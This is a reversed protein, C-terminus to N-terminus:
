TAGALGNGINHHLRFASPSDGSLRRFVRSFYAPDRFGLSWAISELPEGTYVLRRKAEHLLRQQVLQKASLELVARCARNLTSSSVHLAAAYQEVSWASRYHADLLVRFAQILAHQSSAMAGKGASSSGADHRQLTVLVALVLLQVMAVNGARHNDLEWQLLRLYQELQAFLQLESRCDIQQPTRALRAAAAPLLNLGLSDLVADACTLVQGRTGPRFRFGHVCGAPLTLAWAGELQHEDADVTVDVGGESICLVQFMGAHRHPRIHWGAPGSRAEIDEIHVFDAHPLGGQEGYLAYHPIAESQRRSRAM